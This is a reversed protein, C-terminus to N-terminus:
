TRPPSRRTCRTGAPQSSRRTPPQLVRTRSGSGAGLEARDLDRRRPDVPLPARRERHLRLVRRAVAADLPPQTAPGTVALVVRISRGPTPQGSSSSASPEPRFRSAPRGTSRSASPASASRGTSRSSRPRTGTGSSRTTTWASCCGRRLVPRTPSRSLRLRVPGSGCSRPTAEGASRTGTRYHVFLPETLCRYTLAPTAPERTRGARCHVRRASCSLLDALPVDITRRM